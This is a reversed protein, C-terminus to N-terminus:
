GGEQRHIPAGEHGRGPLPPVEHTASSRGRRRAPTRLWRRRGEPSGCRGTAGSSSDAPRYLEGARLHDLTHEEELFHGVRASGSSCMSPWPTTQRGGPDAAMAPHYGHDRRRHRAPASRLDHRKRGRWGRAPAQRRRTGPIRREAGEHLADASLQLWRFLPRERRQPLGYLENGLQAIAAMVFGAEPAAFQASVTRMDAVVPDVFYPIPLGPRAVQTLMVMGPVRGGRPSPGSSPSRVPPVPM